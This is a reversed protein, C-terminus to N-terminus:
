IPKIWLKKIWYAEYCINVRYDDTHYYDKWMIDLQM